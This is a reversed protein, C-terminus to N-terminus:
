SVVGYGKAVYDFTRAVPTGAANFFQIFFGANNKATITHHDGTLLDQDAVSLGMLKKFPLDFSISLGSTPVLIDNDAIVRDPMDIKVSLTRVRPSVRPSYSFLRVRFQFARAFVDGLQFPIWDGWSEEVSPDDTTTRFEFKADWSDSSTSDMSEVDWLTAWYDIVDGFDFGYVEMVGSLRSTYAQGLDIIQAFEYMGEPLFATATAFLMDDLTNLTGWDSMMSGTSLMLDNAVVVVNTRNGAFSPSEVLDEVVNMSSAGPVNSVLMAANTSYVGVYSLAKVMFTGVLTPLQAAPDRMGNTLITASNWNVGDVLPSHRVEFSAVNDMSPIEWTLRMQDGLVSVRMNLPDAPPEYLASLNVNNLEVWVSAAGLVSVSRVRFDHLGMDLSLFDSSPFSTLTSSNPWDEVSGDDIDRGRVQWEYQRIRADDPAIASITVANTMGNTGIPSLFEVISLNTPAAIPGSPYLSTQLPAFPMYRDVYDYKSPEHQAGVVEFTHPNTEKISIVRYLEPSLNSAAIMWNASFDPTESFYSAVKVQKTAVGYAAPVITQEEVKGSPLVVSLTYTKGSTFTVQHDLNIAKVLDNATSSVASITKFANRDISTPVTWYGSVVTAGLFLQSSGDDFTVTIDYTGNDLTVRQEDAPRTLATGTTKIPTTAVFAKELQPLGMRLTFDISAGNTPTMRLQTTVRTTDAKAIGRVLQMRAQGLSTDDPFITISSADNNDVGAGTYGTVYLALSVNSISGGQLKLFLSSTWADNQAAVVNLPDEFAAYVPTASTAIGAYRIDVYPIGDETGFGVIERDLGSFSNPFGWSDLTGPSGVAGSPVSTKIANTAAPEYTVGRSTIRRAGAGFSSWVGGAGQAMGALARTFPFFSLSKTDGNQSYTGGIFDLEAGVHATLVSAIRGAFDIQAISPDQVAILSGPRIGAHDMGASYTITQTELMETAITWRGFRNAQGRSTCGEAKVDTQRRGYRRVGANDTVVERSARYFDDPDNWQVVAVTHRGKLGTSTRNFNGDIVNSPSVLMEIEGPRDQTAMVMGSSWFAMGRFCSAIGQIADFAEKQSNIYGNYTFRPEEGGYGDPVMEDCYKAIEYLSWKDIQDIDLFEGLGYRDNQLIDYFVWAPNNSYAEKFTGNWIGTYTRAVTDYNTPVQLIRGRVKYARSPVNSGFQESDIQMAIIASNPYSFKTDTVETYASFYVDNQSKTKTSDPSVRTVRIQWPYSTGSPNQPLPILKQLDYASTCKGTIKIDGNYNIWPGEFYRVEIRFKVTNGHLNGDDDLRTMVPLRITVRVADLDSNNIERIVPNSHKVQVGVSVEAEVDGFGNIYSQDPLGYRASWSVGKFNYTGDSNQLPTQDLYISKAGDVLGVIEGEGLLDICKLIAKSRLTNPDEQGGQAGGKKGGGGKYGQIFRPKIHANMM